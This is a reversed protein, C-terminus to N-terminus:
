RASYAYEQVAPENVERPEEAAQKRWTALLLINGSPCVHVYYVHEGNPVDYFNKRHPDPIAEAGKALLERLMEVTASPYHKLNEIVTDRKFRLVM